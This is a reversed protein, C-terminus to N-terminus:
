VIHMAYKVCVYCFDYYLHHPYTRASYSPLGSIISKGTVKGAVVMLTKEGNTQIANFDM